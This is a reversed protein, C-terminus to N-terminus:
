RCVRTWLSSRWIRINAPDFSSSFIVVSFNYLYKAWCKVQVFIRLNVKENPNPSLLISLGYTYIFYYASNHLSALVTINMTNKFFIGLIIWQTNFNTERKIILLGENYQSQTLINVLVNTHVHENVMLIRSAATSTSISKTSTTFSYVLWYDPIVLTFLDLSISM